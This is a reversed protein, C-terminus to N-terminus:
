NISSMKATKLKKLYNISKQQWYFVTRKLVKLLIFLRM